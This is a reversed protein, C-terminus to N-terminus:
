REFKAKGAVLKLSLHGEQDKLGVLQITHVM